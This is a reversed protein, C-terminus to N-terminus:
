WIVRPQRFTVSLSDSSFATLQGETWNSEISRQECKHVRDPIQGTDDLCLALFTEPFLYSGTLYDELTIWGLQDSYYKIDIKGNTSKQLSLYGLFHLMFYTDLM